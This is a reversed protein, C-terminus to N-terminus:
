GHEGSTEEGTLSAEEALIPLTIMFCSGKGLESTVTIDGGQLQCFQRSLALGLGTGGYKRTTSADAQTFPQFLKALQEPSLGIGTDQVSFKIWEQENDQYSEIKLYINGDHTFKAANSLLNLISQRVKTLDARLMLQNTQNELILQNNNNQILPDITAVIDGILEDVSFTELYLDMKGAEIKSLDLLDNILALLLKGSRQIKDLDPVFEEPELEEAEEILMESYGIIANLPTRLEHSMNALFISKTANAAEAEARAQIVEEITQELEKTRKKVKAELDANALALDQQAAELQGNKDALQEYSKNLSETMQNFTIALGGIEDETLVPARVGKEGAAIDEAAQTIALIPKTIRLSLLYVAILSVIGGGIGSLLLDQTVKNVLAFAESQEIEAVLTLNYKQIWNYIGIVPLGWSNTYLGEWDQALANPSFPQVKTAQTINENKSDVSLFEPKNNIKGILFTDPIISYNTDSTDDDPNQRIFNDLDQTNLNMTLYGVRENNPGLIDTAFTMQLLDNENNKYFTPVVNIDPQNTRFYTTQNGIGQYYGITSPDSSAVVIGSPSLLSIANIGPSLKHIMMFDMKLAEQAQQYAPSDSSNTNLVKAYAQVHDMKQITVLQQKISEIWNELNSEKLNASIHLNNYVNREIGKKVRFYNSLTILGVISTSALFYTIVLKLLLKGQIQKRFLM